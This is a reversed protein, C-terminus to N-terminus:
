KVAAINLEKKRREQQNLPNQMVVITLFLSFFFANHNDSKIYHLLAYSYYFHSHNVLVFMDATKIKQM